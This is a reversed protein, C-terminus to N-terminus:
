KGLLSRHAAMTETATRTWTFEAARARGKTVLDARLAEDATLEDIARAWGEVDNPHVLISAGGTVEPLSGVASVATPVGSAMAELPTMGFGEDLSPHLLAAAGATLAVLDASPLHGTLRVADILGLQAARAEVREGGLGPPGVAVLTPRDAAPRSALAELLPLLNKRRSVAGIVILYRGPEVGFRSATRAVADRDPPHFFDNDVAMPVVTVRAPEVGLRAHVADATTQSNAILLAARRTADAMARQFLLRERRPFWEPHTLPMLDHVTYIVPAASPVPSSPYLVHVLDPRGLVRDVRPRGVTAWLSHLPKRPLRPRAVALGAPPGDPGPPERSAGLRYTIDDPAAAVLATVLRRVYHGEGTAAPDEVRHGYLAM